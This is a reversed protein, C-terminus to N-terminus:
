LQHSLCLPVQLSRFHCGRQQPPGLASDGAGAQVADTGGEGETEEGAAGGEDGGKHSATHGQPGSCPLAPPEALRYM